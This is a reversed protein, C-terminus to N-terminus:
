VDDILVTHTDHGIGGKIAENNLKFLEFLEPEVQKLKVENSTPM